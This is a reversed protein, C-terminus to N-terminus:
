NTNKILFKTIEEHLVDRNDSNLTYVKTDEKSEGFKTFFEEVNIDRILIICRGKPLIEKLIDYYGAERRLELKGCEDIFTWQEKEVSDLILKKAWLLTEPIIHYRGTRITEEGAKELTFTRKEGTAVNVVDHGPNLVGGLVVKDKCIGQVVKQACTTKGFGRPGSIIINM